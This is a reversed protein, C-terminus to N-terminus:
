FWRSRGYQGYRAFGIVAAHYYVRDESCMKNTIVGGTYFQMSKKGMQLRSLVPGNLVASELKEDSSGIYDYDNIVPPNIGQHLSM